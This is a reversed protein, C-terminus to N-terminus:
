VSKIERCTKRVYAKLMVKLRNNKKVIIVQKEGSYLRLHSSTFLMTLWHEDRNLGTYLDHKADSVKQPKVTM